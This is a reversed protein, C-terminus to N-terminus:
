LRKQFWVVDFRRENKIGIKRFRGCEAFGHRRHFALSGPNESSVHALITDIGAERAAHELRALLRSGLGRGTHEPVLFTTIQATRPFATRSMYPRLLSFGILRGDPDRVAIAPLGSAEDLLREMWEVSVPEELYAAFSHLVYHNFIALMAEADTRLLRDLVWPEAM